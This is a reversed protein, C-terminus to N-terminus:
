LVYEQVSFISTLLPLSTPKVTDPLKEGVCRDRSENQLYSASQRCYVSVM